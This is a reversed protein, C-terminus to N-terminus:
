RYQVHMHNNKKIDGISEENNSPRHGVRPSGLPEQFRMDIDVKASIFQDFEQNVPVCNGIEIQM